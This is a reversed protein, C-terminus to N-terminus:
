RLPWTSRAHTLSSFTGFVQTGSLRLDTYPSREGLWGNPHLYMMKVEIKCAFTRCCNHTTFIYTPQM